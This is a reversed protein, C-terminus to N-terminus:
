DECWELRQIKKKLSSSFVKMSRLNICEKSPIIEKIRRVIFSEFSVCRIEASRAKCYELRMPGFRHVLLLVFACKRDVLRYLYPQFMQANGMDVLYVAVSSIGLSDLSCDQM